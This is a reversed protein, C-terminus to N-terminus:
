KKELLKKITVLKENRSFHNDDDLFGSMLESLRDDYIEEESRGFVHLKRNLKCVGITFHGKTSKDVYLGKVILIHEDYNDFHPHVIKFAGSSRPYLKKKATSVKKLTDPINGLTEQERKIQNCDACIVCLNKPTFIFELHISKPVIHEIHGNSASILSVNQKCYSCFGKQLSRYYNRTEKRLPLLEDESWNLHSFSPDAWKKSIIADTEESFVISSQIDAM